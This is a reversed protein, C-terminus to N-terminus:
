VVFINDMEVIGLFPILQAFFIWSLSNTSFHNVLICQLFNYWLIKYFHKTLFMFFQLMKASGHGNKKM